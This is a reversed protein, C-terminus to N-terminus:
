YYYVSFPSYLWRNKNFKKLNILSKEFLKALFNKTM